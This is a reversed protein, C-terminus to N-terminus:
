FARSFRLALMPVWRPMVHDIQEDLLAQDVDTERLLSDDALEVALLRRLGVGVTFHYTQHLVWKHGLEAFVNHSMVGIAYTDVFLYGAGLYPRFDGFDPFYRLAGTYRRAPNIEVGFGAYLEFRDFPVDLLGLAIGLNGEPALGTAVEIVLRRRSVDIAEGFREHPEYIVRGSPSHVGHDKAAAATALALSAAVLAARRM